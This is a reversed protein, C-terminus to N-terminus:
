EIIDKIPRLALYATFKNPDEQLNM